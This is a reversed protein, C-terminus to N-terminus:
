WVGPKLWRSGFNEPQPHSVWGIRFMELSSAVHPRSFIYRGKPSFCAWNKISILNSQEAPSSVTFINLLLKSKLCRTVQLSFDTCMAPAYVNFITYIYIYLFFYFCSFFLLFLLFLCSIVFILVILLLLLLWYCASPFCVFLLFLDHKLAAGGPRSL